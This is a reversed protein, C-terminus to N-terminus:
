KVLEPLVWTLFAFVLGGLLTFGAVAFVWLYTDSVPLRVEDYSNASNRIGSIDRGLLDASASDTLTIDVKSKSPGHDTLRSKSDPGNIGPDHFKAGRRGPITPDAGTGGPLFYKAYRLPPDDDAPDRLADGEFKALIVTVNDHGGAENARDTLLKCAEKVDSNHILIQRIEEYRVMGSLGDSCILLVDGRRLPVSTLDVQVTEATGLAQLIINNHEFTEAEEETLQGAEILQNVLSQDRTVQVLNDQRLVYARSDGVQGLFLLSDMLTAVTATTGMGRHHRDLKAESFIRLGATEIARVMCRALDNHTAPPDGEVLKEYIINVAMDSAVEGAAAGGMGDCVAMLSGRRGVTHIRDEERISRSKKSLDAVIFSDENHERIRGVDSRGFVNVRITGDPKAAPKDAQEDAHEDTLKDAPKDAPIDTPKEVPRPVAENTHSESENM